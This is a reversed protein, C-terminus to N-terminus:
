LSTLIDDYCPFYKKGERESTPFDQTPVYPLSCLLPSKEFILIMQALGLFALSVAISWYVGCWVPCVVLRRGFFSSVIEIELCEEIGEWCRQYRDRERERERQRENEEKGVGVV